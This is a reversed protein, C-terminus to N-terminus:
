YTTANTTTRCFGLVVAPKYPAADSATDWWGVAPTVAM